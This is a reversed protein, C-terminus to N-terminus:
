GHGSRGVSMLEEQLERPGYEGAKLGRAARIM